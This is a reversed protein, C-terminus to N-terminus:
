GRDGALCGDEGDEYYRNFVSGALCEYMEICAPSAGAPVTSAPPLMGVHKALWAATRVDMVLTIEAPNQTADFALNTLKIM